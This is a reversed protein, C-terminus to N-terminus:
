ADEATADLETVTEEILMDVVAKLAEHKSAGAEIAAHYTNLQRKASTGRAVITRAHEVEAVCGLADADERILEVLEDILESYAVRRGKGFDVMHGETGFRQALWRNENILTRPYIRWRQNDLRLRYLMRLVCMFLAAVTMADDVRTCMDTIRMELTPFRASPRIDWWIKTADEILNAGTMQSILRDYEGWSEFTDPVGTRPLEDFVSLRYSFLGTVEGHWFPSSTSLALIHPLFYVVQNMLDIRLHPDSIGVHVHQGCILLRRAVAQMDHALANYREKDTHKQQNWNAFPHTAAAIPALGHRGAVDAITRRLTILDARAERLSDCVHTEVEIQARLFEQSVRGSLLEEAEALMTAPPDSALDRTERDVLLYEEEIGITFEPPKM